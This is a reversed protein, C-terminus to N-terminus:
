HTISLTLTCNAAIHQGNQPWEIIVGERSESTHIAGIYPGESPRRRPHKEPQRHAWTHVPKYAEALLHITSKISLLAEQWIQSTM